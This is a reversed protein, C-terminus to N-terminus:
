HLVFLANSVVISLIQLLVGFGLVVLSLNKNIKYTSFSLVFTIAIILLAFIAFSVMDIIGGTKFASVGLSSRYQIIYSSGHSSSLRLFVIVASLLGIFVNLTLIFLIIHDRFYSKAIKM